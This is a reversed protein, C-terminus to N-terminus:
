HGQEVADDGNTAVYLTVPPLVADQAAPLALALGAVALCFAVTRIISYRGM